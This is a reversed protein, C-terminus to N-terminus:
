VEVLRCGIKRELEIYDPGNKKQEVERNMVRMVYRAVGIQTIAEKVKQKL